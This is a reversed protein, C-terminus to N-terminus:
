PTGGQPAAALTTVNTGPLQMDNRTSGSPSNLRIRRTLADGPKLHFKKVMPQLGPGPIVECVHWGSSLVTEVRSPGFAKGDIFVQMGPPDTEVTFIGGERDELDAVLYRERGEEVHVRRTWPEYGQQSVSVVYTGPALSFLRPTIWKPNSDGNVTIRAGSVSSEVVLRGNGSGGESGGTSVLEHDNDIQQEPVRPSKDTIEPAVSKAADTGGLPRQSPDHVPDAVITPPAVSDQTQSGPNEPPETKAETPNTAMPVSTTTPDGSRGGSASLRAFRKFSDLEPKLWPAMCICLLLAAFGVLAFSGSRRGRGPNISVRRYVTGDASRLTDANARMSRPSLDVEDLFCRDDHVTGVAVPSAPTQGGRKRGNRSDGAGSGHQGAIKTRAGAASTRMPELSLDAIVERLVADDIKKQNKAYGLSLAQFCLNNINRPIGRSYTAILELAAPTFLGRGAYGAVRLRYDIYKPIDDGDLPPFHTVISVRQRLQELHPSALKDALQPQGVLVIQILKAQPTEFNSLMRVMELVEDDLNQAEDIAVVIRRGSKAEAILVDGLQRQLAGLDHGSPEIDLDALLSRLFELSNAHTHFLMATRASERLREMLRLLITTKGLGPSAILAMFGRGTEIGYILSSFAEQQAPGMYLFRPDPTVGFPQESLGYFQLFM